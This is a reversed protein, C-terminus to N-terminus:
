KQPKHRPNKRVLNMSKGVVTYLDVYKQLELNNAKSYAAGRDTVVYRPPLESLAKAAIDLRCQECSCLEPDDKILEDIKELVADEMLNKLKMM